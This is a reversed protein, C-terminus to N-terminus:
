ICIVKTWNIMDSSIYIEEAIFQVYLIGLISTIFAILAIQYVNKAFILLIDFISIASGPNILKKIDLFM